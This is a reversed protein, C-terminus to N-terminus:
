TSPLTLRVPLRTVTPRLPWTEALMVARSITTSPLTRPLIVAESRTSIRAIDDRKSHDLFNGSRVALHAHDELQRRGIGFGRLLDLGVRFTDQIRQGAHAAEGYIHLMRDGGCGRRSIRQGILVLNGAHLAHDRHGAALAADAFGGTRRVQGARQLM